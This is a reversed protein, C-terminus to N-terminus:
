AVVGLLRKAQGVCRKRAMDVRVKYEELTLLSQALYAPETELRPSPCTARVITGPEPYTITRNTSM